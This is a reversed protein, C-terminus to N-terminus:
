PEIYVTFEGATKSSITLKNKIKPDDMINLVEPLNELEILNDYTLNQKEMLEFFRERQGYELRNM